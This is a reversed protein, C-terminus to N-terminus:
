HSAYVAKEFNTYLEMARPDQFPVFQMLITAAVGNTPDWWYFVNYLGAWALSGASRMGPWQETNIQFGFSHKKKMGPFFEADCSQRPDASKMVQMYLDGIRNETMRRVSAPELIHHGSFRGDHLFMQLFKMYDDATSYLGHGALIYEPNPVWDFDIPTITGDAKRAHVTVLSAREAQSPAFTTRTMGLPGFINDELYKDIAQGSVAEVVQSLWDIGIGYAWDTGPDFALPTFLVKKSGTMIGPHGTVQLYKLIKDNWLEYAFGATHTALHSLTVQTKPPRLRPTDGDFGELVQIEAFEPVISAVPQDIQILGREILQMAATCTVAKTLSSIRILTDYTMPTPENLNRRGFAGEYFVGDRDAAAAVVGPVDGSDVAQQLVKDIEQSM